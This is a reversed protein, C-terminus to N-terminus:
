NAKHKDHHDNSISGYASHQVVTMFINVNLIVVYFKNIGTDEGDDDNSAQEV